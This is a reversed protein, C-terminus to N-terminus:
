GEVRNDLTGIREIEVEIRDGAALWRPPNRTAGSGEPSGTAIVDGPLLPTIRSLYAIIAPVGFFMRGTGSRQVEQGNLRTVLTLAAPDGVEDATALWPGFGGSAMFNKGAWLSQKQVDRVSGDNFCAYGAVHSLARDEPIEAGGRGVVCALEGEYDFQGSITPRRLAARHAVLTEAPKQFIAPFAPGSVIGGLPHEKPYNAGVCFIRRAQPIPPLWGIGALDHRPGPLALAAAAEALADRRLLSALDPHRDGIRATLDVVMTGDVAGFRPAADGPLTFSMLRM